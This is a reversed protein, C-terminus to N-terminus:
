YLKNGFRIFGFRDVFNIIGFRRENVEYDGSLKIQLRFLGFRSKKFFIVKQKGKLYKFIFM